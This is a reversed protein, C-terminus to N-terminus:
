IVHAVFEPHLHGFPQFGLLAGVAAQHIPHEALDGVWGILDRHHGRQHVAQRRPHADRGPLDLPAHLGGPPDPRAAL